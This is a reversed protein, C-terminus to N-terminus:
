FSSRLQLMWTQRHNGDTRSDGSGVADQDPYVSLEYKAALTFNRSLKWHAVLYARVGRGYLASMSWAYQLNSESLYIRANYGDVDFYAGGATLQVKRCKYRLSQAVVWGRLPESGHVTYDSWVARTTSSWPGSSWGLEGQLQRKVNEGALYLTSDINPINMDKLRNSYRVAVRLTRWLQREMQIRLWAGSTPSYSAYRLTTFRHLDLSMLSTFGFPLAAEADFSVGQQGQAVGLAYGQSHINNYKPHYYRYSMGFRMASSPNAELGVVAAPVFNDGVTGEGYFTVNAFKWAFDVGANFQHDGRFYNSNYVYDRLKVSDDLAAYSATLGLILNNHRYGVHAGTLLEGEVRSLFPSLSVGHGLRVTAAVGEQYGSEYFASATRVGRGFRMPSHGMLNFPRLGTWLTLGQGFQLNYRGMIAQVRGDWLGLKLHYGYFNNRGWKETPDKDAVFRLDIRDDLRYNYYLAARLNDGDYKGNSYGDAQEVTGGLNAVLSHQGRAFDLRQSAVYPEVKLFPAILEVTASDFGPVFLLEKLTLLQGYLVIYNCLARHQFPTLFPMSAMSSTDNINVPQNSLQILRDNLEAVADEDETEELWQEVIGEFQAHVCFPLLLLLLVAIWRRLVM